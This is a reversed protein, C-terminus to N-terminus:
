RGGLPSRVAREAKRMMEREANKIYGMMARRAADDPEVLIPRAPVNGRGEDHTIALERITFPTDPYQKNAFGYEVSGKQFKLYNGSDGIVLSNMLTGTDQLIKYKGAAVKKGGKGTRVHKGGYVHARTGKGQRRARKTAPALPAWSGKGESDVWRKTFGEYRKVMQKLCKQWAGSSGGNMEILRRIGADDVKTRSTVIVM